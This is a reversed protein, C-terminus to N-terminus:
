TKFNPWRAQDADSPVCQVPELVADVEDGPQVLVGPHALVLSHPVLISLRLEATNGHQVM